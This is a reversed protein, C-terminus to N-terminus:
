TLFLYRPHIKHKILFSLGLILCVIGTGVYMYGLYTSDGLVSSSTIVVKKQGGFSIIDFRDYIELTYTGKPLKNARRWLKNFSSFPAVRMWVQLDQNDHLNISDLTDQTYKGDKFRYKWKPPPRIDDPKYKTKQFRDADSSWALNSTLLSISNNKSDTLSNLVDDFQSNAILGCPYIIKNPEQEDFTLPDCTSTGSQFNVDIGSLQDDSKSRVYKRHNQYFNNLQYYILVNDYDKDISFEKLCRVVTSNDKIYSPRILDGQCNTYDIVKQDPSYTVFLIGSIIFVISSVMWTMIMTMPTFLPQFGPLTQQSFSSSM